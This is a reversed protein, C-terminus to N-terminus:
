SKARKYKQVIRCWFDVCSHTTTDSSDEVVASRGGLRHNGAEIETSKLTIFLVVVM